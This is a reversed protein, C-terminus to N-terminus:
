NVRKKPGRKEIFSSRSATRESTIEFDSAFMNTSIHTSNGFEFGSDSLNDNFNLDDGDPEIEIGM